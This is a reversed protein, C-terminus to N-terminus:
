KGSPNDATGKTDNPPTETPPTAVQVAPRGAKLNNLINQVTTDQPNLQQVKTFEIISKDKQGLADYVLGLSYFANVYSPNLEVAKELLGQATALLQNKQDAQNEGLTMASVYNVNGKQMYIYPNNPDLYLAKDYSDLAWKASDSIFGYLSQYVYGRNSWNNAYKPNSETSIVTANVSNKVLTQIKNKQDGSATADVNELEDQLLSLYVQSLQRFYLDSSSNLSAAAEINKQGAIKDGKQWAVLGNYYNVEAVYRQGGLILLGLGFIFILTFSFTIILTLTSFPKLEYQKREVTILGVLCAIMFFNIFGLVVNSNYLFYAVVQTGLVTIVGLMLIWLDKSIELNKLGPTKGAILFKIGYFIPLAMFALLAGFGLIGTSALDNLVKSAPQNFVVNLLSGQSFNADKFKLFDYSFMGPGSGFIPREKIAQLSINLSTKQTLSVESVRQSIWPVQPSLLVFFLSVALFFMPMAMWRGDFVDRKIIGFVMLVLAGLFVAWWVTSYNIVFIILASLVLQIAFLIKWWKKSIILMVITLPLLIAAFFGLAGTSGITNFSVLKAFAFSIIFLGSLQLIGFIEALLASASIVKLSTMIDKKSFVNSVLFYFLLFVIFSLLSESISQPWGWFSGYKNVSFITALLHVLFMVGVVIHVKSANIEFKGLILVKLMWAFMAVFGLIVLLMQKNFDLVDPTWPLFFIPVLFIASYISYKTVFDCIKLTLSQEKGM